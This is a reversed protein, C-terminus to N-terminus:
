WRDEVIKNSEGQLPKLSILNTELLPLMWPSTNGKTPLITVNIDKKHTLIGWSFANLLRPIM